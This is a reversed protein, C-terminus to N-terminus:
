LRIRWILIVKKNYNLFLKHQKTNKIPMTHLNLWKDMKLNIRVNRSLSQVFFCPLFKILCGFNKSWNFLEIPMLQIMQNLEYLTPWPNLAFLLSKITRIFTICKILSIGKLHTSCSCWYCDNPILDECYCM